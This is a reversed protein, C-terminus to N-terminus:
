SIPTNKHFCSDAKNFDFNFLDCLDEPEPDINFDAQMEREVDYKLKSGVTKLLEDFLSTRRLSNRITSSNLKKFEDDRHDNFLETGMTRPTAM